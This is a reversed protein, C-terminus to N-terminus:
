DNDHQKLKDWMRQKNLKRKRIYNDVTSAIIGMTAGLVAAIVGIILESTNM